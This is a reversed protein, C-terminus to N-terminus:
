QVSEDRRRIRGESVEELRISLASRSGEDEREVLHPFLLRRVLEDCRLVTASFACHCNVTALRTDECLLGLALSQRTLYIVAHATRGM